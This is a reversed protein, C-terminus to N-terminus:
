YFDYLRVMIAAYIDPHRMKCTEALGLLTPVTDIKNIIEFCIDYHCKNMNALLIEKLNDPKKIKELLQESSNYDDGRECLLKKINEEGRLLMRALQRVDPSTDHIAIKLLFESFRIHRVARRRVMEVPHDALRILVDEDKINNIVKKCLEEAMVAGNEQLLCDVALDDNGLKVEILCRMFYNENKKAVSSLADLYDRTDIKDLIQCMTDIRQRKRLLIEGLVDALMIEDNLNVLAAELFGDTRDIYKEFIKEQLLSEDKCFSLALKTTESYEGHLVLGDIFDNDYRLKTVITKYFQLPLRPVRYLEKLLDDDEIKMLAEIRLHESYSKCLVVDALTQENVLM